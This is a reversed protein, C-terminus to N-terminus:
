NIERPVSNELLRRSQTLLESAMDHFYSQQNYSIIQNQYDAGNNVIAHVGVRDRYVEEGSPPEGYENSPDEEQPSMIQNSQAIVKLDINQDSVAM